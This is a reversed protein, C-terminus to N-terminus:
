QQVRGMANALDTLYAEILVRVSRAAATAARMTQGHSLPETGVGAAFNTIVSIGAVRLGCHRALITEPVLSMGVASAGLIGAARIEAPTEFSPGTFCAYVGDFLPINERAAAARLGSNMQPDYAATMDVFASGDRAAGILPNTGMFNIHDNILMLSGPGEGQRLSGAANTMLLMECGAAKAARLPVAMADARGSEYYHVRGQLVLVPLAGVLGFQLCGAHGEIATHPFGTLDFYDLQRPQELFNAVEGLGSGLVVAIRPAVAGALERIAAAANSVDQDIFHAM